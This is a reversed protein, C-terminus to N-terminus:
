LYEDILRQAEDEDKIYFGSQKIKQALFKGTFKPNMIGYVQGDGSMDVIIPEDSDMPGTKDSMLAAWFIEEEDNDGSHCWDAADKYLLMESTILTSLIDNVTRFNQLENSPINSIAKLVDAEMSGENLRRHNKRFKM